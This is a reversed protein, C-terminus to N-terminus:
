APLFVAAGCVNDIGLLYQASFGPQIRDVRLVACARLDTRTKKLHDNEHTLALDYFQSTLKFLLLNIFIM